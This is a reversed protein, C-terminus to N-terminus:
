SSQQFVFHSLHEYFARYEHVIVRTTLHACSIERVLVSEDVEYM